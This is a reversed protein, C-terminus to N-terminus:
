FGTLGTHNLRTFVTTLRALLPKLRSYALLTTHKLHPGDTFEDLPPFYAPQNSAGWCDYVLTSFGPKGVIM